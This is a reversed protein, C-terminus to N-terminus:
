VQELYVNEKKHMALRKHPTNDDYGCLHLMGHAALRTLENTLSVKYYEAQRKATDISLYIEGDVRGRKGSDNLNFSIVDTAYDHALYTKNLKRIFTDDTIVVSVVAESLGEGLVIAEIVRRLRTGPVRRNPVTCSIDIEIRTETRGHKV